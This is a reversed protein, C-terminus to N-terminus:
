LVLALRYYVAVSDPQLWDPSVLPWGVTVQHSIRRGRSSVGLAAGLLAGRAESDERGSRLYGGDLAALASLEGLWPRVPLTRNLENRWFGGSDGSIYQEKFGRVSSEGGLTLRASGYLRDASWQGYASSLWHWDRDLPLYYSASLTWQSFEARPANPPKNKDSEAGFWPVGRSFGPNLTGYGGWLKQSHNVGLSVSSLRRSSSQLRVDNLSNRSTRQTLGLALGTKIREDRYLGRSLTLRHSESAGSSRWDYCQQSLTSLYSNWAYSYDALWYGYPLSVGAQVSQADHDNAFASSRGGAIFWQDALGLLNNGTLSGNIQEVGTNKQGSNDFGLGLLLPFEPEASLSVVSHGPQSGPLIDIQVPRRRLRNIQEMGQEIDRLNLLGGERDPFAMALMPSTRQELLIQQLRGELVTLRLVGQALDQETLFARSTIYGRNLYADSVQQVLTQIQALGLCQHLYPQILRQRAQESLHDAGSLQITHILFCIGTSSPAEPQAPSLPAISRELAERQLRNQELLERQQQQIADRDAPSISAAPVTFSLPALVLFLILTINKLYMVAALAFKECELPM